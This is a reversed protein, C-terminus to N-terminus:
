LTPDEVLVEGVLFQVTMVNVSTAGGPTVIVGGDRTDRIYNPLPEGNFYVGNRTIRVTPLEDM